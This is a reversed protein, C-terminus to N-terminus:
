LAAPLTATTAESGQQRQLAATTLPAPDDQNIMSPLRRLVDRLYELPYKGRRQCSVVLLYIIASRHGAHPHGIFFWNKGALSPRGSRM